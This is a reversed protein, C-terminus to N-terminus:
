KRAEFIKYGQEEVRKEVNRFLGKLDDEYALKRNAVMYLWGGKRLGDAASAIFARGLEIDEARGNHFPPNMAIWDLAKPMDSSTRIDRWLCQWDIDAEGAQKELNMTAAKLARKDNDLCYLGAGSDMAPILQCSLYGWGCGFDAGNGPLHEPLYGALMASGSDAQRWSHLGPCAYYGDQNGQYAGEAVMSQLVQDELAGQDCSITIFTCRHKAEKSYALGLADAYKPLQRGGADNPAFAMLHGNSALCCLATALMARAAASQKETHLVITRPAGYHNHAEDCDGCVTYGADRWLHAQDCRPTVVVYGTAPPMDQMLAPSAPVDVLWIIGPHSNAITGLWDGLWDRLTRAIRDQTM